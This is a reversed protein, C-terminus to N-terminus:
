PCVAFACFRVAVPSSGGVGQNTTRTTFNGVQLNGLAKQELAVPLGADKIAREAQERANTFPAGHPGWIIPRVVQAFSATHVSVLVLWILLRALWSRAASSPAAPRTM